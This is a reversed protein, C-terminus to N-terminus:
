QFQDDLNKPNLTYKVIHFQAIVAARTRQVRRIQFPLVISVGHGDVRKYDGYSDEETVAQAGVPAGTQGSYATARVTFRAKVLRMSRLAFYLRAEFDGDPAVVDIVHVATRGLTADSEGATELGIAGPDLLLPLAWRWFAPMMPAPVVGIPRGGDFGARHGGTVELFRSPPALWIHTVIRPKGMDDTPGAGLWDGGTFPLRGGNDAAVDDIVAIDLGHIRARAGAGAIAQRAQALFADASPAAPAAQGVILAALLLILGRM